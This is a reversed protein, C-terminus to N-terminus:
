AIQRRCYDVIERAMDKDCYQDIGEFGPSSNVECVKFGKRDFLLDVGAIQLGLLLTSKVAIEDIEPTIAYDEGTGGSSINARFDGDPATRKMAARTKGGIVWVRLDAGVEADVYEQVILSKKSKLNELLEMLDKFERKSHCLYVGRGKSGSVVKVVCPYGIEKQVVDPDVPFNVLMTKPIPVGNSALIQSTMLKDKVKLIGDADNIVPVGFKEFQRMVALTFYNSGAGTRTLVLDPLSVRKGEYLISKESNRSVVIDFLKPRLVRAEINQDAFAQVLRTNEYSEDQNNYYLIWVKKM